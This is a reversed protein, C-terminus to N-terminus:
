AATRSQKQREASLARRSANMTSMVRVSDDVVDASAGVATLLVECSEGDAPFSVVGVTIDCLQDDGQLHERVVMAGQADTNILLVMFRLNGLHAVLDCNRFSQAMYRFLASEDDPGWRGTHAELLLLSFKQGYRTCRAIEEELRISFYWYALLGTERDYIALREGMERLRRLGEQRETIRQRAWAATQLVWVSALATTAILSITWPLSRLNHNAEGAVLGVIMGALLAAAGRYWWDQIFHEPRRLLKAGANM